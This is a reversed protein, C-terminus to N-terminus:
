DALLERWSVRGGAASLGIMTSANGGSSGAALAYALLQGSAAVLPGSTGLIQSGTTSGGSPLGGARIITPTPTIGITSQVGSVFIQQGAFDVTDSSNLLGNADTDLVPADIRGGTVPDVVMLFSSGGFQCPQTLPLLTTFILRGANLIPRFVSREGTTDANPFDLLWGMHKPPSDGANPPTTDTSWNPQDPNGPQQLVVRFTGVGGAGLAIDHPLLQNRGTLVTQNAVPAADNKDWIGYFSQVQYNPGPVAFPDSPELYKGTGFAIIFGQGSPHLTAEPKATIPQRTGGADRATFLVVRNAASSWNGAVNSSVDFKWLQGRLDGAYIFDVIGDANIDAALPQTLGNARNAANSHPAEIRVYDTGEVWTRDPGTPGDLFIIFLYAYDTSNTTCNAPTRTVVSDTCAVEGPLVENNNYGGPVIAAWRGNAMRRIVPQGFVYGINPDDRDNFEWMVVNAANAESFQDPRTIDLAFVGQGGAALGSVLVTRWENTAGVRIFADGVEPSGDVYYRHQTGVYTKEPLRNLRNHVMSPVYAMIERGDSARFAHLMGDNGGVYIVPERNLNDQRFQVYASDGFGANPAGVFNPNSNAIDGLRSVPRPRFALVGAGENAQSGRLYELRQQGRNDTLNTGPSFNLSAILGPSLESPAPAAPNAPWRFAVGDRVTPTDNFTLITRGAASIAGPSTSPTTGAPPVTSTPSQYNVIQGADWTPNLAIQGDAGVSFALVQGSWDNANFRAQYITTGTQLSTSNTAVSSASSNSLIAIFARDLAAVLGLPNNVLFYTDPVGDQGPQGNALRSDWEGQQDPLNNNNSDTFAGYKSAYWMPDQLTNAAASGLSYVATSPQDGAQCNACGGSLNVKTGGPLSPYPPSPFGVTPVSATPTSSNLPLLGPPPVAGSRMFVPVTTGDTYNFGLIGSHFHPGDKTTGSITYGFGQRNVTSQAIAATTVEITGAAADLRWELTGYMDQDYDGGQESDEWNLYVKGTSILGATQQRIVKLDVLAGGGVCFPNVACGFSGFPVELRYIPQIVVKQGTTSGPVPITLQPVNTAMQIGYTTVKLSRTDSGPVSLLDTRIRATKAHHALGPMLYSGAVTPGEPCIGSVDGLGPITKPTCLEYGPNTVPTGGAGLIKGVFYTGGTIGEANGVATSLQAATSSSNISSASAPRLDDDNTSVSSNFVLVNVPACYNSNNLPDSWSPLPMGLQNDKSGNNAFSYAATPTNGAFYRLSEFYVEATPNGWSTCNNEVISTQQFDCNDGGGGLYTGDGYNYGWIRAYNLTNVIGAPTAASNTTRPSGPPVSPTTFTGDTAINVENTFTGVNKRLVGGSLNKRYSGTILGFHILDVDGYEQLLGIPKYNGDPYQKCRESGFLGAVCARVRAVYQGVATAGAQATGSGLGREAQSPNEASAPMESLSFQNGNSGPGVGPQNVNGGTLQAIKASGPSGESRWYCQFRENASWLQYNGRAVRILPALANTQSVNNPAAGSGVTVNCISIGTQSLNTIRWSNNSGSGVIGKVDVRVRVVSNTTVGNLFRQVTGLMCPTAAGSCDMVGAGRGPFAASELRIQDGPYLANPGASMDTTFPIEIDWSGVPLAVQPGAGVLVPIATFPVAGSAVAAAQGAFTYGPAGPALVSNPRCPQAAGTIPTILPPIQFQVNLSAFPQPLAPFTAGLSNYSRSSGPTDAGCVNPLTATTAIFQAPATPVGAFPTLQAIDTGNYYKAWAHADPPIYARELVTTTATDTSRMGGYLLKRVADMRSMTAWNLFNGSWNGACYRAADVLNAPEFRNTASNYDYCKGSDFYGYYDISHKYTTELQGDGDLDSYDNYAKKYLQQDKSITLMVQPPVNAGIFLPQNALQLFVAGFASQASMCTLATVAIAKNVLARTASRM